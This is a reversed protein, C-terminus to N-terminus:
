RWEGRAWKEISGVGFTGRSVTVEKKQQVEELKADVRPTEGVGAERMEAKAQALRRRRKEIRDAKLRESLEKLEEKEFPIKHTSGEEPWFDPVSFRTDLNTGFYYM